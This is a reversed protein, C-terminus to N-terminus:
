STDQRSHEHTTHEELLPRDGRKAITGDVFFGCLALM